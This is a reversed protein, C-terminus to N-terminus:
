LSPEPIRRKQESELYQAPTMGTNEKFVTQFYSRSGFGCADAISDNSWEAHEKLLRKAHEVRLGNIWPNFVRDTAKLWLSLQNRSVDLEDAVRQLTAKKHLYGQRATWRAVAEEVHQLVAKVVEARTDTAKETKDDDANDVTERLRKESERQSQAEEVLEPTISVSYRYFCIVCYYITIFFLIGFLGLLKGSLFIAVTVFVATAALMMVSNHMWQFLADTDEDNYSDMTQKLKKHVKYHLIYYWIQTAGFCLAVILVATNLAPSVTQLRGDSFDAGGLTAFLIIAVSWCLGGTIWVSRPVRGHRQLNLLAMNMLCSSPIFFLLNIAVGLTISRARFGLIYQLLFQVFLLVMACVMLWRARNVSRGVHRPVLTVLTLTLLATVMMAGFQIEELKM